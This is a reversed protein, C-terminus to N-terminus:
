SVTDDLPPASRPPQARGSPTPLSMAHPYASPRCGHHATFANSFHSVTKFGVAYAVESVTGVGATLLQAGRELRITRIVDSTSQGTLAHLRRYLQSRSLGVADALDRVGFDEDALHAEVTERVSTLLAEDASTVEPVSPQLALPLALPQSAPDSPADGQEGLVRAMGEQLFRERLRQRGAILNAIRARLEAPDFPKTLYDDAQEKLGGIRDEPAARATLLVVPLFDTEPDTKLARCLAVGDLTGPMMVDSLVLDPLLRRAKDLGADGTAAELVRYSPTGRELHRRIFARVEPHDEVVLVTKRGDAGDGSIEDLVARASTQDPTTSSGAGDGISVVPLDGPDEADWGVLPADLDVSGEPLHAHGLRLMLTFTSGQGVTSEADLTGHHLHALERALALGIGTGVAHEAESARYFRDFVHALAEPAIGPGDDRVAVSATTGDSRVEVWVHGGEPTFKLANSLLNMAMKELLGPDAYVVLPESPVDVNLVLRRREALPAIMAALGSVFAGLDVAQAHLPVQGAELRSVDLIENILTLVRGANTRALSLQTDMADPVTGYHGARVDDLPGLTLTLPTRFEHSVNAFFRSRARDVERLQEAELREMESRHRLEIRERRYRAAMVVAVAVALGYLLYAWWTRWWPPVVVVGLATGAENWVGDNNTGRVRFTYRGPPVNTYTATRATGAQVWGDDFGDLRYAYRNKEPASYDLAAFTFAFANQRHSLRLEDTALLARQLM